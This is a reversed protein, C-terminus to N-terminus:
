VGERGRIKLTNLISIKECRKMDDRLSRAIEDALCCSPLRFEAFYLKKYRLTGPM